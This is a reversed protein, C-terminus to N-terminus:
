NMMRTVYWLNRHPLIVRIFKCWYTYIFNIHVNGNHVIRKPKPESLALNTLAMSLAGEGRVPNPQLSMSGVWEQFYKKSVKRIDITM